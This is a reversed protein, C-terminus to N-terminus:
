VQLEEISTVRRMLQDIKDSGDNSYWEEPRTPSTIIINTAAFETSGGKYQVPCDYRDLLSLLMGFPLQGRFEEFIVDTQGAYGDFWKERTPTWIWPNNCLEKAKRSKGSGTPGVLVTVTPQQNRPEILIQQLAQLGKHFKLFTEPHEQAVRKLSKSSKLCDVADTIDKRAGQARNNVNILIESDKKMCYLSDQACKTKEWHATEHLKKLGTLRYARLFTVRGQYHPTGEEGIEHSVVLRNVETSWNELCKLDEETPNNITFDWTKAPNKNPKAEVEM